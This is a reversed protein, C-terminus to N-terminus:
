FQDLQRAIYPKLLFIFLALIMIHIPKTIAAMFPPFAFATSTVSVNAIGESIYSLLYRVWAFDIGIVAAWFLGM